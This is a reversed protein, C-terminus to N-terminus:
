APIGSFEVVSGPGLPGPHTQLRGRTFGAVERGNWALSARNVVDGEIWRQVVFRPM